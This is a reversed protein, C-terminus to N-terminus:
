AESSTVSLSASARWFPTAQIAAAPPEPPSTCYGATAGPPSAYGGDAFEPLKRGVAVMRLHCEALRHSRVIENYGLEAAIGGLRSDTRRTHRDYRRYRATTVGRPVPGRDRRRVDGTKGGEQEGM